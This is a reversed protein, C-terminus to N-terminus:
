RPLLGARIVTLWIRKLVEDSHQTLAMPMAMPMARANGNANGNDVTGSSIVFLPRTCSAGIAQRHSYGIALPM